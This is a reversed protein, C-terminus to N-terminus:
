PALKEKRGDHFIKWQEGDISRVVFIKSEDAALGGTGALHSHKYIRQFERKINRIQYPAPAKGFVARSAAQFFPIVLGHPNGTEPTTIGLDGGLTQWLRLLECQHLFYPRKVKAIQRYIEAQKKEAASLQALQAIVATAQDNKIKRLTRITQDYHRADKECQKRLRQPSTKEVISARIQEIRRRVFDRDAGVPLMMEVAPWWQDVLEAPRRYKM